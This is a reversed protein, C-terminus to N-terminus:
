PKNREGERAALRARQPGVVYKPDRASQFGAKYVAWRECASGALLLAAGAAALGRRRGAAGVLGAGAATCAKAARALRGAPGQHYPEGLEGLRREMAEGAGLELLAGAVALRRAPGADGAPTLLVAAAGASAAASGAFLFPLERGAEHWVPVATNAVLTGTYTALAPGLLGAGVEAARGLRPFVGLRDSVVAGVAAPGMAALIWSGVSLPSTVKFMRLMYLFREPRGLDSALLPVGATGGAGAVAWASRALRDNGALRAGLGLAASAGAVGGTFFYWPVEWTWVPEKLIPRGYYSRFEAEPVVAGRVRGVPAGRRPEGSGEPGGRRGGTASV